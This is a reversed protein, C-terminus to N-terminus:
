GNVEQLISAFLQKMVGHFHEKRISYYNHKGDRRCEIVAAERLLALHHSVAPQQQELRECLASVHLEGERVLYLLIKLRSEDALLKFTQLLEREFTDSLGTPFVSDTASPLHELEAAPTPSNMLSEKRPVRPADPVPAEGAPLRAM